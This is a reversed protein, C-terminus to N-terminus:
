FASKLFELSFDSYTKNAGGPNGRSLYCNTITYSTLGYEVTLTDPETSLSTYLSLLYQELELRTTKKVTGNVTITLQGGGM